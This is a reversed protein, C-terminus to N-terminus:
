RASGFGRALWSLAFILGVYVALTTRSGPKTENQTARWAAVLGVLILFRQETVLLTVVIAVVAIARENRSLAHFGRSGDLQWVPIMNFLNVFAGLQAVAHWIAAHTALFVGEAAIAAGLGWLPGALGIRADIRPDTIHERLMVLAGVGPIFLPASSAIGLRRLEFVHGMEHIYISVALGLALPWGYMSWYVGFFAFMSAVTSLKTLGLILFKLKGLLLLLVAVAGGILGRRGTTAGDSEGATGGAATRQRELGAIRSAIAAAQQSEAPVLRSAREWSQLAASLDGRAAAANADDALQRLREGHVLRACAPCVTAHPALETGCDRCRAPDTGTISM